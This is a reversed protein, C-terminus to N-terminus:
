KCISFTSVKVIHLKISAALCSVNLGTVQRQFVVRDMRKLSSASHELTTAAMRSVVVAYRHSNLTM